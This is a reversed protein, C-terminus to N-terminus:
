VLGPQSTNASLCTRGWGKGAQLALSKRCGRNFCQLRQLSNLLMDEGGAGMIARAEDLGPYTQRTSMVVCCVLSTICQTSTNAKSAARCLLDHSAKNAVLPQARRQLTCDLHQV